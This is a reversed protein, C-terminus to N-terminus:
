PPLANLCSTSTTPCPIHLCSVVSVLPLTTLSMKVSVLIQILPQLWLPRRMKPVGGRESQSPFPSVKAGPKPQLKRVALLTARTTTPTAVTGAAKKTTNLAGLIPMPAVAVVEAVAVVRTAAATAVAVVVEVEAAVDEILLVKICAKMVVVKIAVAGVGVIM